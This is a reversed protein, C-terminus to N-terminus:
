DGTLSDAINKAIAGTITGDNANGSLDYWKTGYLSEQSLNLVLGRRKPNNPHHYNYLVDEPTLIRNYLRAAPIYGGVPAYVLSNTNGILLNTASNALARVTRTATKNIGNVYIEGTAAGGTHTFAVHKWSGDIFDNIAVSQIAAGPGSILILTKSGRDYYFQYGNGAGIKDAIGVVVGAVNRATKFWFEGSILGTTSPDLSAGNGCDVRDSGAATPFFLANRGASIAPYKSTTANTITGNNGTQPSVDRWTGAAPKDISTQVLSMVLGQRKPNNPHLYNYNIESETLARNYLQVESMYGKLMWNSSSIGGITIPRVNADMSNLLNTTTMRVANQFLKINESGLTKDFTGVVHYWGAEKVSNTSYANNSAGGSIINFRFSRFYPNYDAYGLWFGGAAGGGDSKSILGRDDAEMLKDDPNIYIRAIVTFADTFNLSAHNVVNISSNNGGEAVKGYFQVRKYTDQVM